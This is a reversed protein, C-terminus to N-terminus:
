RSQHLTGVPIVSLWVNTYSMGQIASGGSGVPGMADFCSQSIKGGKPLSAALSDTLSAAGIPHETPDAPTYGMNPVSARASVPVNIGLGQPMNSTTISAAAEGLTPSSTNQGVRMTQQATCGGTAIYNGPPLSVTAPNGTAFYGDTPGGPGAVGRPGAKSWAIARETARHCRGAHTILRVAGTRNNVCAHFVGASEANGTRVVALGTGALAISLALLAVILAPSPRFWRPM